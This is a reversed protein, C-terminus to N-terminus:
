LSYNNYYKGKILRKENENFALLRNLTIRNSENVAAVGHKVEDPYDGFYLPHAFIGFQWMRARHAANQDELSDMSKPYHWEM